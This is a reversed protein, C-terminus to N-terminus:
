LLDSPTKVTWNFLGVGGLALPREETLPQASISGRVARERSERTYSEKVLGPEDWQHTLRSGLDAVSLRQPDTGGSRM